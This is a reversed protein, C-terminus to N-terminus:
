SRVWGRQPEMEVGGNVDRNITIIVPAEWLQALFIFASAGWVYHRHMNPGQYRLKKGEKRQLPDKSISNWGRCSSEQDKELLRWVM